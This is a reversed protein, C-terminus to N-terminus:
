ELKKESGVNKSNGENAAVGLNSKSKADALMKNARKQMIWFYLGPSLSRLLIALRPGTTAIVVEKEQLVVSNLIQQAVYEPPYGGATTEDMVGYKQGSGTVANISLQTQVYGPSVVTVHVNHQAIEPRMSDFFAQLAHKSASYASRFPIAVRGQISSVAVIHGAKRQIMYPLIEKTLAIQGFYNVQMVQMDVELKTSHVSGRQSMGGNNILIDISGFISNARQVASPISAVDALDLTIVIPQHAPAVSTHARLLDDRVRELEKQRRATLIIKCGAQYFQHALAEGIGSSAGTILVVKGKLQSKLIRLRYRKYLQMTILPVSVPICLTSIIWWLIQWNMKKVMKSLNGCVPKDGIVIDRFEQFSQHFYSNKLEFNM